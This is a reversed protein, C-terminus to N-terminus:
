IFVFCFLVNDHNELATEMASYMFCRVSKQICQVIDKYDRPAPDERPELHLHAGGHVEMPQLSVAQRVTTQEMLQLPIEAGAGPAGGGGGEESVKTDVSSNRKCIRV